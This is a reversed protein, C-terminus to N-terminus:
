FVIKLMIYAFILYLFYYFLLGGLSKILKINLKDSKINEWRQKLSIKM